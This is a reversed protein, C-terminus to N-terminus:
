PRLRGDEIWVVRDAFEEVRRDHTVCLVTKGRNRVADDLLAMVAAGTKSDLNGTPEDALILPPDNALARAVAVRQKEGGSLTAPRAALRGKLGLGQLLERARSDADAKPRGAAELVLRVNELATLNALLQFAQFVFGVRELRVETLQIDSLRGLELDGLWVNGTTPRLLAGCVQLLTTKGAGSPGMVMVLEGGKLSLNVETLAKVEGDGAPFVRSVDDLRLIPGADTGAGDATSSHTASSM